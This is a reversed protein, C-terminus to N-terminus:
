GEDEPLIEECQIIGGACERACTPESCRKFDSARLSWVTYTSLNGPPCLEDTCDREHCTKFEPDCPAEVQFEYDKSVLFKQYSLGIILVISALLVFWVAKMIRPSSLM